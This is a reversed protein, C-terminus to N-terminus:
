QALSSFISIHDKTKTIIISQAILDANSKNCGTKLM